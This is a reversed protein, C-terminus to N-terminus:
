HTHGDSDHDSKNTNTPTHKHAHGDGSVQPLSMVGLGYRYVAEGGLWGTSALLGGSVIALSLFLIRPTQKKVHMWLSWVTLVAFTAATVFAWNRHMTMAEHSATDHNVSNYAFYGAIVTLITIAMGVWLCWRAVIQWQTKLLNSVPLVTSLLYFMVAISLLGVTFHVLIPHWNPIIEIM